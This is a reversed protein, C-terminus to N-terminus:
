GTGHIYLCKRFLVNYQYNALEGKVNWTNTCVFSICCAVVVFFQFCAIESLNRRRGVRLKCIVWVIGLLWPSLAATHHLHPAPLAWRLERVSSQWSGCGAGGDSSSLWHQFPQTGTLALACICHTCVMFRWTQRSGPGCFEVARQGNVETLVPDSAYSTHGLLFNSM